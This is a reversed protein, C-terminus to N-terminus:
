PHSKQEAAKKINNLGLDFENELNIKHSKIRYFFKEVLSENKGDMGWTVIVSKDLPVFLFDSQVTKKLRTFVFQLRVREHPTTDILKVETTAPDWPSWSPWDELNAIQNYIVDVPASIQASRQIRYYSPQFTAILFFLCGVLTFFVLLVIFLKKMM